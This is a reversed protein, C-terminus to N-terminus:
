KKIVQKNHEALQTSYGTPCSSQCLQVGAATIPLAPNGSFSVLGLSNDEKCDVAAFLYTDSNAACNKGDATTTLDELTSRDIKATGKNSASIEIYRLPASPLHTTTYFSINNGKPADLTVYQNAVFEFDFKVNIQESSNNAVTWRNAHLDMASLLLVSLCLNTILKFNM